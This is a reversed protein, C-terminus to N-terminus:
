WCNLRTCAGARSRCRARRGAAAGARSAATPPARATVEVRRGRSARRHRSWTAQEVACPLAGVREGAALLLAHGDGLDQGLLRPEHEGVLRHRAEVQGVARQDHLRQPPDGRLRPMVTMAVRWWTSSRAASRPGRAPSRAPRSTKSPGGAASSRRPATRSRRPRAGRSARRPGLAGRRATAVPPTTLRGSAATWAPGPARPAARGDAGAAVQQGREAEGDHKPSAARTISSRGSSSSRSMPLM